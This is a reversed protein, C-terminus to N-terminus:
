NKLPVIMLCLEQNENRFRIMRCRTMLNTKEKPPQSEIIVFDDIDLSQVQSIKNGM